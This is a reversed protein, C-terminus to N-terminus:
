KQGSVRAMIIVIVFVYYVMVVIYRKLQFTKNNKHFYFLLISSIFRGTIFLVFIFLMYIVKM